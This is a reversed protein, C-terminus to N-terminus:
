WALESFDGDGEALRGRYVGIKRDITELHRRTEELWARVEEAHAELLALREPENGRGERVLEAYRRIRGTPM